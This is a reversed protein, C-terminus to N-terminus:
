SVLCRRSRDDIRCRHFSDGGTEEIRLDLDVAGRRKTAGVEMKRGAAAANEAAADKAAAEAAADGIEAAAEAAAGGGRRIKPPRGSAFFPM